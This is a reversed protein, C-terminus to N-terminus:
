ENEYRIEATMKGSQLDTELSDIRGQGVETILIDGAEVDEGQLLRFDVEAKRLRATVANQVEESGIKVVPSYIGALLYKPQLYELSLEYNQGSYHENGSIVWGEYDPSEMVLAFGDSSCESPSAILFDIDTSFWDVKRDELKDDDFLRYEEPVEITKGDFMETQTDMWSYEYRSATSDGNGDKDWEWRNTNNAYSYPTNNRYVKRLDHTERPDNDTYTGGRDYFTRHEIRLHTAGNKEYLDWYCNFANKLLTEIKSWTIPALWAPYDYNLNLINSKQTIYLEGQTLGKVPNERSFLFQSHETDPEFTIANDINNLVTKIADGLKYFDALHEVSSHGSWDGDSMTTASKHIWYSCGVEWEDTLVRVWNAEDGWPPLYSDGDMNRSIYVAPRYFRASPKAFIYNGKYVDYEPLTVTMGTGNRSVQRAYSILFRCWVVPISENVKIRNERIRVFQFSRCNSLQTTSGFSYATWVQDNNPMNGSWVGIADPVGPNIVTYDADNYYYINWYMGNQTVQLRIRIFTRLSTAGTPFLHYYYHAENTISYTYRDFYTTDNSRPVFETTPVYYPNEGIIALAQIGADQWQNDSPIRYAPTCHFGMNKLEAINGNARVGEDITNTYGEKKYIYVEDRDHVYLETAPFVHCDLPYSPIDMQVLNYENDKNDEIKKYPDAAQIDVTAIKHNVDWRCDTKRFTARVVEGKGHQYVVLTFKTRLACNYITWFDVGLFKITGSLDKKYYMKGSPKNQKTKLNDYRPCVVVTREAVDPEAIILNFWLKDTTTM